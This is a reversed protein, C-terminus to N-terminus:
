KGICAFIYYAGSVALSNASDPLAFIAIFSMHRSVARNTKYNRREFADRKLVSDCLWDKRGPKPKSVNQRLKPQVFPNEAELAVQGKYEETEPILTKKFVIETM